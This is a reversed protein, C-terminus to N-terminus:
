FGLKNIIFHYNLKDANTKKTELAVELSDNGDIEKANFDAASKAFYSVIKFMNINSKVANHLPSFGDRDLSVAM